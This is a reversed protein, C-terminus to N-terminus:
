RIAAMTSSFLSHETPPRHDDALALHISSMLPYHVPGFARGLGRQGLISPPHGMLELKSLYIYQCLSVLLLLRHSLHLYRLNMCQHPHKSLNFLAAPPSFIPCRCTKTRMYRTMWEDVRKPEVRCYMAACVRIKSTIMVNCEEEM